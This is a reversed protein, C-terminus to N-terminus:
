GLMAAARHCMKSIRRNIRTRAPPHPPLPWASSRGPPWRRRAAPLDTPTSSVLQPRTAAALWEGDLARMTVATAAPAHGVVSARNLSTMMPAPGGGLELDTLTSGTVELLEASVPPPPPPPPPPLPLAVTYQVPRTCPRASSRRLQSHQRSSARRAPRCRTRLCTRSSRRSLLPPQCPRLWRPLSLSLSLSLCPLRLSPRLPPRRPPPRRRRPLRRRLPSRHRRRRPPLGPRAM